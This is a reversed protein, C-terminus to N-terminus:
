LMLDHAKDGLNEKKLYDTIFENAKTQYSTGYFYHQVGRVILKLFNYYHPAVTLHNYARWLNAAPVLQNLYFDNLLPQDVFWDNLDDTMLYHVATWNIEYLGKMDFAPHVIQKARENLLEYFEASCLIRPGKVGIQECKVAEIVSNGFVFPTLVKKGDHIAHLEQVSADGFGVGGRFLLPYWKASHLKTIAKGEQIEFSKETINEPHLKDESNAFANSTFSFSGNIFDALQMVFESPKESYLFISDSFPIFYKFSDRKYPTLYEDARTEQIIHDIQTQYNQMLYIAGRPDEKVFNSFGLIDIYCCIGNNQMMSFASRTEAININRITKVTVPIKNATIRILHGTIGAM